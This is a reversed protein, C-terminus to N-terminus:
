CNNIVANAGEMHVKLSKLPKLFFSTKLSAEILGVSKTIIMESCLVFVDKLICPVQLKSSAKNKGTM